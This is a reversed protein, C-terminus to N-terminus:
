LVKSARPIDQIRAPKEDRWLDRLREFIERDRRYVHNIRAKAKQDLVQDKREKSNTAYREMEAMIGGIGPVLDGLLFALRQDLNTLTLLKLDFGRMVDSRYWQPTWHAERPLENEGALNVEIWDIMIMVNRRHEEPTQAEPNLGHRMLVARLPVYKEWGSGVVKDFYLSLFRDVPNRLITFAHEEARIAAEDLGFASARAFGEMVDHIRKPDHYAQGHDLRWILNKVFTCGCKPIFLYRIPLARCSLLRGPDATKRTQPDAM